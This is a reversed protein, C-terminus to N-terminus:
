CVTIPFFKNSPTSSKIIENIKEINEIPKKIKQYSANIIEAYTCIANQIEKVKEENTEKTQM